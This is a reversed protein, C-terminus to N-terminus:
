QYEFINVENSETYKPSKDIEQKDIIPYTKLLKKLKKNDLWDM